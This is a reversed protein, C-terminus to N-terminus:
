RYCSEAYDWRGTLIPQGDEELLQDAIRLLQGLDVAYFLDAAEAPTLGLLHEATEPVDVTGGHEPLRVHCGAVTTPLGRAGPYADMVVWGALCATTGCEPDPDAGQQEVWVGLDLALGGVESGTTMADVAYARTDGQEEVRAEASLTAWTMARALRARDIRM